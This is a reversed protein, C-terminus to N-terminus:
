RNETKVDRVSRYQASFPIELRATTHIGDSGIRFLEPNIKEQKLMIISMAFGLGEGESDDGHDRYFDIISSYNQALRMKERVRREDEPTLPLNNTVEVCIGNLLHTFLIQVWLGVAKAKRAYDSVWAVDRSQMRFEKLREHYSRMDFLDWGRECFFLYKMNAKTANTALELICAFLIDTVTSKIFNGLLQSIINHLRTEPNEIGSVPVLRVTTGNSIAYSLDREVGFYTIGGVMAILLSCWPAQLYKRQKRIKRYGRCASDASCSNLM